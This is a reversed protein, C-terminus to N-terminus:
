LKLKIEFVTGELGSSVRISGGHMVTIKKAIALGLGSGGTETSRSNEVRYFRDFIHEIGEKPIIEGYNLVAISVNNETKHVSVKILKGDRGYKVANGILNSFARALLEGDAEVLASDCNTSFEYQLGAEEFSPYFEEVMQEALKVIDITTRKLAVEGTSVKTFSFLDGILNQLRLAKEYAITIYRKKTEEELTDNKIVLDLYGIVSTLPTRLDHAVNTILDNKMKENGREKEMLTVINDAMKNLQNGILAFEDEDSIDIRTTLDGTSMRRIGAVIQNLYGTMKRSLFLFYLIFLVIGIIIASTVLFAFFGKGFPGKPGFDMYAGATKGILQKEPLKEVGLSDSFSILLKIAGWLVAETVITYILSLLSYLIIKARFSKLPSIQSIERNKM